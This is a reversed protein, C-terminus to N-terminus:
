RRHVIECIDEAATKTVGYINRPIPRTDETVWAASADAPPTLASAFASTTSPFVFSRVGAAAAAEGLTLTGRSNRDVLDQRPHADRRPAQAPDRCPLRRGGSAPMGQGPRSRHDLRGPREVAFGDPRPGHRRPGRGAAHARAGGGPARRKGDGPSERRHSAVAS